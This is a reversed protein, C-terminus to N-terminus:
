MYKVTFEENVNEMKSSDKDGNHFRTLIEMLTDVSVDPIVEKRVITFGMKDLKSLQKSPYDM